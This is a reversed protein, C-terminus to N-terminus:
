GELPLTFIVRTGKPWNSEAYITGGHAEIIAKCISLGLGIGRKGDTVGQDLTVYKDFLRDKINSDIGDGTDSVVVKIIKRGEMVELMIESDEPTHRIANELLNILVQVILKGDMPVMVVSEPLNVSFKREKLHREIHAVAESVVDDIIEGEKRVVLGSENIRTMNLINEVLNTLWLIEESLDMALKKREKESLTEYNDALLNGAGLLATLPSRLDHAVSRLLTARLLEREMALKINEQENYLNERDLAIGLQMAVTRAILENQKDMIVVDGYIQLVGLNGAASQIPFTHSPNRYLKIQDTEEPYIAEDGDLKVISECDLFESIFSIARLVISKKGSIPLFGSAIQYLVMAARENKGAIDIQQQLRSTLTGSVIATILFFILLIIDSTHYMVFTFRPETFFYNFALLSAISSLVGWVYSNTLASSFMVGLLFVMIISEKSVGIYSMGLSISIALAFVILTKLACIGVKM